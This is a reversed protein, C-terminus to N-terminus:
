RLRERYVADAIVLQQIESSGEIIEMVKADRFYRAVDHQPTCGIAGHLRVADSAARMAATSAFYKAMLTATTGDPDQADKLTAARDCLLRAAVTDTAMDTVMRRVLQHQSLPGGGQERQASHRVTADLCAQLIGVCGSAVSLRGIDLTGALVTQVAWGNPGILADAGVTCDELELQAVMSARTGLMDEVPVARLGPADAPVLFAATGRATRAFVLFVGALQGGTIWRKSGNLVWGDGSPEASTAIASADSGADPETLCFAGVVDGAALPGLWRDRQTDTGWRNVAWSAMSHVTLLSRVSSCGRGIEEHLEAFTRMTFGLGGVAEPLLAGWLGLEALRETMRPPVRQEADFDGAQPVLETDVFARFGSRNRCSEPTTRDGVAALGPAEAVAGDPRGM